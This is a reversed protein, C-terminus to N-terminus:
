KTAHWTTGICHVISQQPGVTPILFTKVPKAIHFLKMTFLWDPTLVASVSWFFKFFAAVVKADDLDDMEELIVYRAAANTASSKAVNEEGLEGKQLKQYLWCCRRRATAAGKVVLLLPTPGGDSLGTEIWIRFGGELLVLGLDKQVRATLRTMASKLKRVRDLNRSSIKSTLEDLAPYAATELETTRAALFSCIAELAVELAQFEFPSEDEEGADIDHQGGMEKGIYM